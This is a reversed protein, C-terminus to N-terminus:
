FSSAEKETKSRAYLWYDASPNFYILELLEPKIHQKLRVFDLKRVCDLYNTDFPSFPYCIPKSLMQQLFQSKSDGLSEQLQFVSFDSHFNSPFFYNFGITDRICMQRLVLHIKLSTMPRVIVTIPYRASFAISNFYWRGIMIWYTYEHSKNAHFTPLMPYWLWIAQNWRVQMSHRNNWFVGMCILLPQTYRFQLVHIWLIFRFTLHLM